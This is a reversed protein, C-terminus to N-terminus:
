NKKRSLEATVYGLVERLNKVERKLRNIELLSNDTKSITGAKNYISKPSTGYIQALDAVKEGSKVKSLIENWQDKTLKAM